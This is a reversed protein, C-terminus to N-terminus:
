GKKLIDLFLREYNNITREISYTDLARFKGNSIIKKRLEQDYLAAKLKNAFDEINENEYLLGSEGEVIQSILGAARTGVVPVGLAMSELVSQSLGEDLSPLAAVTFLYNYHISTYTDLKGAYLITNQIGVKGVEEDLVGPEIGVFIVKIAPDLHKLAKILQKQEKLRSVCGIVVDGEKIGHKERLQQTLESSLNEYKERPTGNNVVAMHNEPIGMKVFINKLEESVAVIRETGKIYFTNQLFGGISKPVQRRTHVIKVPLRYLWKAFISTYRDHTSQANILDISYEKVIEKIHRINNRDLKGRFTMPILKVKSNELLGWLLSERRCGMYVNHGKAALGKTLYSISNTAGSLDGQHTLFLLNL